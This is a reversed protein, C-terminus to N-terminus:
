AFALVQGGWKEFWERCREHHDADSRRWTPHRHCLVIGERERRWLQGVLLVDEADRWDDIWSYCWLQAEVNPWGTDPIRPEPLNTTKREVILITNISANRLVLDPKCRLPHGNVILRGSQFIKDENGGTESFVVKWDSVPNGALFSKTWKFQMFQEIDRHNMVGLYQRHRRMEFNSQGCRRARNTQQYVWESFASARPIPNSPPRASAIWSVDAM